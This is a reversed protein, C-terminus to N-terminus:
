GPLISRLAPAFNRRALRLVRQQVMRKKLRRSGLFLSAAGIAPLPAPVLPATITTATANFSSISLYAEPSTSSMFSNESYVGFSFTTGAPLSIDSFSSSSGPTIIGLRTGSGVQYYGYSPSGFPNDSVDTFTLTFSLKYATSRGSSNTWQSTDDGISTDSNNVIANTASTVNGCDLVTIGTCNIAWKDNSFDGSFGLAHAPKSGFIIPLSFCSVTLGLWLLLHNGILRTRNHPQPLPGPRETM